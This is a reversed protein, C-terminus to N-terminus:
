YKNGFENVCNNLKLDTWMILGNSHSPKTKQGIDSSSFLDKIKINSGFADNEM